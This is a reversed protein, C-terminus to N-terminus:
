CLEKNKLKSLKKYYKLMNNKKIYEYKSWEITDDGYGLEKNKRRYYYLLQMLEQENDANIKEGCVWRENKDLKNLWLKEREEESYIKNRYYIPLNLKTGDRTRYFEKTEEGKYKNINSDIRKTYGNGIGPSCLIKPQYGKHDHDIKNCYKVIYNITKNNVYEGFWVIGYQWISEIITKVENTFILGHLHIRETNHHGLETILWHKVSKKYKKRWRELFRRVALTAIENERIDAIECNVEKNLKDLEDQSFTLTVFYANKNIRLEEQLRVQWQRKKQKMCEICKGCGVPVLKVREDNCIPINGGNKKNSVYKKNKILIPYLCM